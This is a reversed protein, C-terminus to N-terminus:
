RIQGPKVFIYGKRQYCSPYREAKQTWPPRQQISVAKRFIVKAEGLHWCEKIGLPNKGNYFDQECGNCHKVDMLEDEEGEVPKCILPIIGDIKRTLVKRQDLLTQLENLDGPQEILERWVAGPRPVDCGVTRSVDGIRVCPGSSCENCLKKM